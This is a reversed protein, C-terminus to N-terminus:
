NRENEIDNERTRTRTKQKKRKSGHSATFLGVQSTEKGVTEKGKQTGDLGVQGVM